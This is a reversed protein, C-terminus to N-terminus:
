NTSWRDRYTLLKGIILLTTALSLAALRHINRWDSNRRLQGCNSWWSNAAEVIWRLGLTIPVPAPLSMETTTENDNLLNILREIQAVPRPGKARHGFTESGLTPQM